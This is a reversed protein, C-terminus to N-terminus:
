DLGRKTRKVASKTKSTLHWHGCHPCQYIRLKPGKRAERQADARSVYPVKLCM